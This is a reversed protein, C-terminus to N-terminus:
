IFTYQLIIHKNKDFYVLINKCLEINIHMNIIYIEKKPYFLM